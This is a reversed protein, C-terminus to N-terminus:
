DHSNEMQADKEEPKSERSIVVKLIRRENAEQIRMKVSQYYAVEGPRPVRGLQDFLFGGLTEYNDDPFELDLLEEIEELDAKGDALWENDGIAQIAPEEVDYEDHIEGVIEELLDELTAVGAVGGYEDVVVAMHIKEKQFERLLNRVRKTEPVFYAPRIIDELKISEPNTQWYRLLDKAYLIGEIHDIRERYVPIKSYKSDVALKVAASLSASIEIAALDIRPTMVERVITESFEVISQLLEGEEQHFIGEEEGADIISQITEEAQSIREDETKPFLFEVAGSSLHVVVYALPFFLYGCLLCLGRELSNLSERERLPFFGPLLFRGCMVLVFGASLYFLIETWSIANGFFCIAMIAFFVLELFMGGIRVGMVIMPIKMAHYIGIKSKIGLLRELQSTNLEQLSVAYYLLAISVIGLLSLSFISIFHAQM